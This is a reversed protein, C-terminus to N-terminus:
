TYIRGDMFYDMQRDLFGAPSVIMWWDAWRGDMWWDHMGNAMREAMWKDVFRKTWWAIGGHLGQDKMDDM